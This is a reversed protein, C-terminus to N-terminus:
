SLIFAGKKAGAVVHKNTVIIPITQQDEQLFSFFFGTGWANGKNLEVQIQVTSFALQETISLPPSQQALATGSQILFFFIFVYFTQAIRNKLMVHNRNM